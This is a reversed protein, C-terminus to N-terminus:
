NVCTRLAVEHSFFCDLFLYVADPSNVRFSLTSGGRASSWFDAVAGVDLAGLADLRQGGHTGKSVNVSECMCVCLYYLLLSNKLPVLLYM